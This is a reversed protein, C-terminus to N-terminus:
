GGRQCSQVEDSKGAQHESAEEGDSGCSFNLVRELLVGDLLPLEESDPTSFNSHEAEAVGGTREEGRAFDTASHARFCGSPTNSVWTALHLSQQPHLRAPVPLTQNPLWCLLRRSRSPRLPGDGRQLDNGIRRRMLAKFAELQPHQRRDLGRRYCVQFGLADAERAADEREYSTFASDVYAEAGQALVLPLVDLGRVDGAAGPLLAFEVPVGAETTVVHVRVGYFFRGKSAVKGRFAEGKVRKSRAIRINDCIAV